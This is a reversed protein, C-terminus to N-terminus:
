WTMCEMYHSKIVSIFFIHIVGLNGCMENSSKKSYQEIWIALKFNSKEKCCVSMMDQSNKIVSSSNSLSM